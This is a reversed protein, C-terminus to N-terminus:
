LGGPGISIGVGGNYQGGNPANCFLFSTGSAPTHRSLSCRRPGAMLSFAQRDGIPRLGDDPRSKVSVAILGSRLLRLWGVASKPVNPRGTLNGKQRGYFSPLLTVPHANAVPGPPWHIYARLTACCGAVMPRNKATM